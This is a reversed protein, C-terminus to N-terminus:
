KLITYWYGFAGNGNNTSSVSQFNHFGFMAAMYYERHQMVGPVGLIYFSTGDAHPKMRALILHRYCYYGHLLFSNGGYMWCGMPLMGIDQLELRVCMEVSDDEFPYMRPFHQMLKEYIHDSPMLSESQVAAAEETEPLEAAAEAEVEVEVEVEAEAEAREASKELSSFLVLCNGLAERKQFCETELPEDDWRTGYIKENNGLIVIGSVRGLEYDTGLLHSSDTELDFIGTQQQMKLKGADIGIYGGAERILMFIEYVASQAGYMGTM